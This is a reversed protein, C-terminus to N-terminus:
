KWQVVFELKDSAALGNPNCGPLGEPVELNMKFYYNAWFTDTKQTAPDLFTMPELTFIQDARFIREILDSCYLSEDNLIYTFNYPLGLWKKAEVLAAPIAAQYAPKLRYVAYQKQSISDHSLFSNLPERVSGNRTNAHLVFISDDIVELLAVHDFNTSSNTQTVRDIAGSLNENSAGVFLLDGNEIVTTLDKSSSIQQSFLPLIATFHVIICIFSRLYRM